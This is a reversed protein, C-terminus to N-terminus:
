LPVAQATIPPCPSRVIHQDLGTCFLHEGDGSWALAAVASDCEITGEQPTGGEDVSCVWVSHTTHAGRRGGRDTRAAVHKGDASWELALLGGTGIRIRKHLVLQRDRGVQM